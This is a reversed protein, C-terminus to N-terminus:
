PQRELVARAAKAGPIHYGEAFLLLQSLARELEEIHYTATALLTILEWGEDTRAKGTKRLWEMYSHLREALDSM